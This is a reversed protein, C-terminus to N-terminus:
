QIVVRAPGNSQGASGRNPADQYSGTSGGAVYSGNIYGSGGGGGSSARTTNGFDNGGGGGGGGYYGAGGGAGGAANQDTGKVGNGGTGGQLASGATAPVNQTFFGASVTVQIDDWSGGGDNAQVRQPNGPDVRV